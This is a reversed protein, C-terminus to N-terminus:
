QPEKGQLGGRIRRCRFRCQRRHMGSQFFRKRWGSNEQFVRPIRGHLQSSSVKEQFSYSVHMFSFLIAMIFSIILYSVFLFAYSLLYPMLKRKM